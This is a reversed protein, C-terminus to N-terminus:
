ATRGKEIVCVLLDCMRSAANVRGDLRLNVMEELIRHTMETCATPELKACWERAIQKRHFWPDMNGRKIDHVAGVIALVSNEHPSHVDM